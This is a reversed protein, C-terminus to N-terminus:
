RFTWRTSLTHGEIIETINLVIGWASFVAGTVPVASMKDAFQQQQYLLANHPDVQTSTYSVWMLELPSMLGSIIPEGGSLITGTDAVLGGVDIAIGIFPVMDGEYSYEPGIFNLEGMYDMKDPNIRDGCMVPDGYGSDCLGTRVYSPSVSPQDQPKERGHKHRSMAAHLDCPHGPNGDPDRWSTYTDFDLWGDIMPGPPKGNPNYGWHGTPDSFVVPSNFAYAYRDFAVPNGPGPVLTDAQIFRGLSPDYWRANYFYLGLKKEQRQGTFNYDTPTTSYSYRTECRTNYKTRCFSQMLPNTSVDELQLIEADEDNLTHLAIRKAM